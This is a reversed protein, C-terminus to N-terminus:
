QDQGEGERGGGFFWGLPGVKFLGCPLDLLDDGTEEPDVGLIEFVVATPREVRLEDM